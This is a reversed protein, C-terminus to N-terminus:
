IHQLYMVTFMLPNVYFLNVSRVYFSFNRKIIIENICCLCYEFYDFLKNQLFLSFNGSCNKEKVFHYWLNISSNM